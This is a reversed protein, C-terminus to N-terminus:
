SPAETRQGGPLGVMYISRADGHMKCGSAINRLYQRSLANQGRLCGGACCIPESGTLNPRIAAALDKSPSALAIMSHTVLWILRSGWLRRTSCRLSAEVETLM